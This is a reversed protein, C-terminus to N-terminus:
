PNVSVKKIVSGLSTEVKVTYIGGVIGAFDVTAAAGYQSKKVHLKEGVLNFVEVSQIESHTKINLKRQVPNPFLIVSNSEISPIKLGSITYCRSTDSCNNQSVVVSFNGNNLPQFVKNIAGSIPTFSSGCNYWQYAVGVANSELQSSSQTVTTDLKIVTLNLRVFSDCGLYSGNTIKFLATNNSASYVVNDIWKFNGCSQRLDIGTDVKQITLNLTISSDCGNKAGGVITYTATNNSRTYTNGDIWKFSNCAIIRQTSKTSKKITLELFEFSDCGNASANAYKIFPATTSSTYTIGNKWKYNECAVIKDVSFGSEFVTLNLKIISDCGNKAGNKIVFTDNFNSSDYTKNNIWKFTNCASIKATSYVPKVITLNLTVISDCGSKAGGSITYTATNNSSNYTKGDIWKFSICATIKDTSKSPACSLKQIFIDATADTTDNSIGADPDFDTIGQFYGFLYVNQKEDTELQVAAETGTNVHKYRVLDGNSNLRVFAFDQNNTVSLTQTNSGPDIDINGGFYIVSLVNKNKDIKLDESGNFSGTCNFEKAWVFNGNSDLKSIYPDFVSSSMSFTSSGPDFDQTGGFYGAHTIANLNDIALTNIRISASNNNIIKVWVYNGLSNYKAVFGGTFQSSATASVVAVGPDFDVTQNFTGGVILNSSNDVKMEWFTAGNPNTSTPNFDIMKVWEFDGNNNWKCLYGDGTINGTHTLSNVNSSLDFDITGQFFGGFYINGKSDVTASHPFAFTFATTGGVMKAWSFKGASDLKLIFTATSNTTATLNSIGADPDFDVTSRFRGILFINDKNDVLLAVRDNEDEQGGISKAWILAGNSTYKAIYYDSFKNSKLMKKGSNPDMDVSDAFHGAIVIDGSNTLKMERAEIGSKDGVSKQWLFKDAQSFVSSNIILGILLLSIKMTAKLKNIAYFKCQTKIKM